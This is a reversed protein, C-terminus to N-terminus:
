RALRFNLTVRTEIAVAQGKVLHPKFQWQNVAAIAADALLAQGSILKVQQVAGDRGARVELVVPGQIQQQRAEEPYEPEVRRLLDAEAAGATLEMVGGTRVGDPEISAAERVATESASDPPEAQAEPSMRFVEKGNEFILLGGAPVFAHASSKARSTQPASIEAPERGRAAITGPSTDPTRTSASAAAIPAAPHRHVASKMTLHRDVVAGLWVACALIAASLAWTVFDFHRRSSSSTSESDVEAIMESVPAAENEPRVPQAARELNSLARSALVELTREDREAFASPRSSFAEFVGVLEESRLLPMVIVSRVGLRQSAEVDARKDVLVDDCRQTQRTKVCLGSLGSATDLRMGLEPATSGTSARCVMEGERELVIAAGTAGTAMCAQEVIENLVIQLALDASLAPEGGLAAFRAALEALDTQVRVKEPHERLEGSSSIQNSPDAGPVPHRPM